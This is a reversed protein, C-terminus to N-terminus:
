APSNQATGNGWGIPSFPISSLDDCCPCGIPSVCICGPICEGAGNRRVYLQPHVQEAYLGSVRGAAVRYRGSTKYLAISATFGPASM